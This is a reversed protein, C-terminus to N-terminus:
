PLSWSSSRLSFAWSLANFSFTLSHYKRENGVEVSTVIRQREITEGNAGASTVDWAFVRPM